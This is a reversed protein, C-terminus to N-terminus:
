VTTSAGLLKKISAGCSVIRNMGNPTTQKGQLLLKGYQFAASTIEADFPLDVRNVYHGAFRGEENRTFAHLSISKKNDFWEVMFCRKEDMCLAVHGGSYSCKAILEWGGRITDRQYIRIVDPEDEAAYAILDRGSTSMGKIEGGPQENPSVTKWNKVKGHEITACLLTNKNFQEGMVWLKNHKVMTHRISHLNKPLNMPKQEELYSKESQKGQCINMQGKINLGVAFFPLGASVIRPSLGQKKWTGLSIINPKTNSSKELRIHGDEHLTLIQDGNIDAAIVSSDFAIASDWVSDERKPILTYILREGSAYEDTNEDLLTESGDEHESPDVRVNSKRKKGWLLFLLTLLGSGGAIPLAPNSNPEDKEVDEVFSVRSVVPIVAPTAVAITPSAISGRGSSQNGSSRGAQKNGAQSTSNPKYPSGNGDNRMGPVPHGSANGEGQPMGSQPTQMNGQQPMGNGPMPANGGSGTSSSPEQTDAQSPSGSPNSNPNGSSADPSNEGPNEQSGTSQPEHNLPQETQNNPQNPNNQEPNPSQKPSQTEPQKQQNNQTNPQPEPTEEARSGPTDVLPNIQHPADQGAEKPNERQDETVAQPAAPTESQQQQNQKQKPSDGEEEIPNEKQNTETQEEHNQNPNKISNKQKEYANEKGKVNPKSSGNESDLITDEKQNKDSHKKETSNDEDTHNSAQNDRSSNQDEQQSDSGSVQNSNSDHEDHDIDNQDTDASHSSSVAKRLPMEQRNPPDTLHTYTISIEPVESIAANTDAIVQYQLFRGDKKIQLSGAPVPASWIGFPQGLGPSIRYRVTLGPNRISHTLALFEGANDIDFENILLPENGCHQQWQQKAPLKSGALPAPNLATVHSGGSHILISQQYFQSSTDDSVFLSLDGEQNLQMDLVPQSLKVPLTRWGNLQGDLETQLLQWVGNRKLCCWAYGQAAVIRTYAEHVPLRGAATASNNQTIEILTSEPTDIVHIDNSSIFANHQSIGKGWAQQFDERNGHQKSLIEDGSHATTSLFLLILVLFSRNM